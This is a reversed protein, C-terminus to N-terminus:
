RGYLKAREGKPARPKGVEAKARQRAGGNVYMASRPSLPWKLALSPAPKGDEGPWRLALSPAPDAM